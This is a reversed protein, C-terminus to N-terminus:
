VIQDFIHNKTTWVTASYIRGNRSYLVNEFHGLGEDPTSSEKTVRQAALEEDSVVFRDVEGDQVFKDISQSPTLPQVNTRPLDYNRIGLILTIEPM